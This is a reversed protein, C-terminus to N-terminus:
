RQAASGLHRLDWSRGDVAVWPSWDCGPAVWRSGGRVQNSCSAKDAVLTLMSQSFHQLQAGTVGGQRICLCAPLLPWGGASPLQEQAASWLISYSAAVSRQRHPKFAPPYIAGGQEAVTCRAQLNPIAKYSDIHSPEWAHLTAPTLSFPALNM